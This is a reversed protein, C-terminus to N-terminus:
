WVIRVSASVITPWNNTILQDLIPKQISNEDPFVNRHYRATNESFTGELFFLILLNKSIIRFIVTEMIWSILYQRWNQITLSFRDISELFDHFGIRPLLSIPVIGYNFHTIGAQKAFIRTNELSYFWFLTSASMDISPSMDKKPALRHTIEIIKLLASLIVPILTKSVFFWWVVVPHM